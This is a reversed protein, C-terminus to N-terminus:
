RRVVRTIPVTEQDDLRTNKNKDLQKVARDIAEDYYERAKDRNDKADDGQSNFILEALRHVSALTFREWRIIQDSSIMVGLDELDQIIYRAVEAAQEDWTLKAVGNNFQTKADSTGLDPYQAALDEDRSFMHGIFRLTADMDATFTIRAWYLGYVRMSELGSGAMDETDARQWSENRPLAWAIHGSRALTTIRAADLTMDLVDSAAIWTRGNWLDVQVRSNDENEVDIQFYRHNFPLLGGLYLADEAAVVSLAETAGHLNNLSESLDKLSGNDSFIIRNNLV